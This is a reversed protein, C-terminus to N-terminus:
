FPAPEEGIIDSIVRFPPDVRLSAVDGCRVPLGDEVVYISLDAVRNSGLGARTAMDLYVIEEPDFGLLYSAVADVAVMNIGAIVLGVSRNRGRQFGTGERGVIGEVINLKPVVIRATDILRKALGEQWRLHASRDIQGRKASPNERNEPLENWAQACFHRNVGNVVGMLNKMCLTTVALNHTKLKPVNVLVTGPAVALRSVPLTPLAMADPVTLNVCNYDNPCRLQARTEAAVELYGTGRWHRPVNDNSNRPDELIFRQKPLEDDRDIHDILGHIFAPHTTIGSEPNSFREGITVNPKFVVKEDELEIRLAEMIQRGAKRFEEPSPPDDVRARHVMVSQPDSLLPHIKM